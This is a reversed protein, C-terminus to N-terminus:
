EGLMTFHRRYRKPIEIPCDYGIEKIAKGIALVGDSYFALIRADKNDIGKYNSPCVFTWDAGEQNIVVRYFKDLDSEAYEFKRIMIIHEGVDDASALLITNGDHSVCMLLPDDVQQVDVITQKDPYYKIDM